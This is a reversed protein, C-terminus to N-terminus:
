QGELIDLQFTGKYSVYRSPKSLRLVKDIRDWYTGIPVGSGYPKELSIPDSHFFINEFDERKEM